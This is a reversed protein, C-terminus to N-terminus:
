DFISFFFIVRLMIIFIWNLVILRYFGYIWVLYYILWYLWLIIYLPIIKMTHTLWTQVCTHGLTSKMSYGSHFVLPIKIWVHTRLVIRPTRNLDILTLNRTWWWLVYLIWITRKRNMITAPRISCILFDM